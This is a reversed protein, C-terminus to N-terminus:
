RTKHTVKRDNNRYPMEKLIFENLEKRRIALKLNESFTKGLFVGMNNYTHFDASTIRFLKEKLSPKYEEEKMSADFANIFGRRIASTKTNNKM